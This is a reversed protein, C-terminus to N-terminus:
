NTQVVDGPSFHFQAGLGANIELATDAENTSPYTQCETGAACPQMYPIIEVIKGERILILDLPILTDKMWFAMLQPEDYTFLMGNSKGLSTRRMLGENRKEPTDAIEIQFAHAQGTQASTITLFHQTTVSRQTVSYNRVIVILLILLTLLGAAFFIWRSGM